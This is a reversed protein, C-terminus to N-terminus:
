QLAEQSKRKRYLDDRCAIARKWIKMVLEPHNQQLQGMSFLSDERILAHKGSLSRVIYGDKYENPVYIYIKQRILPDNAFEIAEASAGPTIALIIAFDQAEIEEVEKSPLDAGGAYDESLVVRFGGNRLVEGILDRVFYLAHGKGPGGLWVSVEPMAKKIRERIDSVRPACRRDSARIETEWKEFIRRHEQKV